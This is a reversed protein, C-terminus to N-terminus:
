ISFSVLPWYLAMLPFLIRLVIILGPLRTPQRNIELWNEEKIANGLRTRRPPSLILPNFPYFSDKIFLVSDEEGKLLRALIRQNRPANKAFLIVSVFIMDLIILLEINSIHVCHEHSNPACCSQPSPPRDTSLRVKIM